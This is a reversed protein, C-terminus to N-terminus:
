AVTDRYPEYTTTGVPPEDDFRTGIHHRGVVPGTPAHFTMTLRTGAKWSERHEECRGPSSRRSASGFSAAVNMSM